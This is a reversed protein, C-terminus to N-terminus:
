MIAHMVFVAGLTHEDVITDPEEMLLVRKRLDQVELHQQMVIEELKKRTDPKELLLMRQRLKQIELSQETVIEELKKMECDQRATVISAMQEVFYDLPESGNTADLDEVDRM